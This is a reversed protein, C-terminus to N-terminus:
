LDFTLSRRTQQVVTQNSLRCGRAEAVPTYCQWGGYRASLICLWRLPWCRTLFEILFNLISAIRAAFGHSASTRLSETPSATTTPRQRRRIRDITCRLLRTTENKCTETVVRINRKTVHKGRLVNGVESYGDVEELATVSINDSIKERKDSESQKWNTTLWIHIVLITLTSRSLIKTFIHYVQSMSGTKRYQKNKNTM